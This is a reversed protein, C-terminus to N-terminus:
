IHLLEVHIPIRSFPPKPCRGSESYYTCHAVLLCILFGSTGSTPLQSHTALFGCFHHLCLQSVSQIALWVCHPHACFLWYGHLEVPFYVTATFCARGEKTLDPIFLCLVRSVCPLAENESIGCEAAFKVLRKVAYNYGQKTKNTYGNRARIDAERRRKTQIRSIGNNKCPAYHPQHFNNQTSSTHLSKHIFPVPQRHWRKSSEIPPDGVSRKRAGKFAQM